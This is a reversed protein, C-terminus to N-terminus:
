AQALQDFAELAQAGYVYSPGGGMYIAVGITELIEERTAGHRIAASTHFGICGDCRGSIGIALAILEKIKPSLSGAVTATGGLASFAKAVDPSSKRYEQISQTLTQNAIKWDKHM